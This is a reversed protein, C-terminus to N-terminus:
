AVRNSMLTAPTIYSLWFLVRKNSKPLFRTLLREKHFCFPKQQNQQQDKQGAKEKRDGDGAAGLLPDNQFDLAAHFHATIEIKIDGAVLREFVLFLHNADSFYANFAFTIFEGGLVRSGLVGVGYLFSRRLYFYGAFRQSLLDLIDAVLFEKSGDFFRARNFYLGSLFQRRSSIGAPPKIDRVSAKHINRPKPDSINFAHYGGHKYVFSALDAHLSFINDMLNLQFEQVDKKKRKGKIFEQWALLLNDISIINEFKHSLQIKM